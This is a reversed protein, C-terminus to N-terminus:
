NFADDFVYDLEAAANDDSPNTTYEYKENFPDNKSVESLPPQASTAHREYFHLLTIYGIKYALYSNEPLQELFAAFEPDIPIVYAIIAALTNHYYLCSNTVSMYIDKDPRNILLHDNM